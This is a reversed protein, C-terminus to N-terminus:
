TKWRGYGNLVLALILFRPVTKNRLACPIRFDKLQRQIRINENSVHTKNACPQLDCSKSMKAFSFLKMSRYVAINSLRSIYQHIRWKMIFIKTCTEAM